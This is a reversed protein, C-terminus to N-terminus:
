HEIRRAGTARKAEAARLERETTLLENQHTQLQEEARSLASQLASASTLSAAPIDASLATVLENRLASRERAAALDTELASVQREVQAAIRCAALAEQAAAHPEDHASEDTLTCLAQWAADYEGRARTARAQERDRRALEGDLEAIARQLEAVVGELEGAPLEPRELAERLQQVRGKAHRFAPARRLLEDLAVQLDALGRAAGAAEQRAALVQSRATERVSDARSFAETSEQERRAADTREASLAVIQRRLLQASRASELLATAALRERSVEDFRERYSEALELLRERQAALGQRRTECESLAERLAGVQVE